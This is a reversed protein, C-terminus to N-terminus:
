YGRRKFEYGQKKLLYKEVKSEELIGKNIKDIVEVSFEVKKNRLQRIWTASVNYKKEFDSLNICKDSLYRKLKAANDM